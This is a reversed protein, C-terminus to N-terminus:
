RSKSQPAPDKSEAGKKKPPPPPQKAAPKPPAIQPPPAPPATRPLLRELSQLQAIMTNAATRLETRRVDAESQSFAFVTKGARNSRFELVKFLFLRSEHETIGVELHGHCLMTRLGDHAALGDLAALARQAESKLPGDLMLLKRLRDFKQGVLLPFVPKIAAYGPVNNIRVLVKSLQYEVEAFIGICEGRWRNAAGRVAPYPSPSEATM